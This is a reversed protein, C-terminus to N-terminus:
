CIVRHKFVFDLCATHTEFALDQPEYAVVCEQVEPGPDFKHEVKRDTRLFILLIDLKPTHDLDILRVDAPLLEIGTEERLERVAAEQYTEGTEMYGGPLALEGYAPNNNRRILVVGNDTTPVALVVVPKPNDYFEAGCACFYPYQFNMTTCGCVSCFNM